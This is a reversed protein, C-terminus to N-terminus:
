YVHTVELKKYLIMNTLVRVLGDDSPTPVANIKHPDDSFHYNAFTTLIQLGHLVGHYLIVSAQQSITDKLVQKRLDEYSDLM